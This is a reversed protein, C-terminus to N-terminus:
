YLIYTKVSEGCMIIALTNLAENFVVLIEDYDTRFVLGDMGSANFKETEYPDICTDLEFNFATGKIILTRYNDKFTIFAETQYQQDLTGDWYAEQNTSIYQYNVWDAQGFSPNALLILAITLYKIM